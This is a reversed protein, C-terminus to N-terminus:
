GSPTVSGGSNGSGTMRFMFASMWSAFSAPTNTKVPPKVRRTRRGVYPHLLPVRHDRVTRIHRPLLVHASEKDDLRRVKVRREFPGPFGCPYEHQGAVGVAPRDLDRRECM